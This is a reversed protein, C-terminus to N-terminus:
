FRPLLSGRLLGRPMLGLPFLTFCAPLHASRQFIRYIVRPAFLNACFDERAIMTRRPSKSIRFLSGQGLIEISKAYRPLIKGRSKM